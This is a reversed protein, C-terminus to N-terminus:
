ISAYDTILPPKPTPPLTGSPAPAPTPKQPAPKKDLRAM